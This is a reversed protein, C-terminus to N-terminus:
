ARGPQRESWGRSGQDSTDAKPARLATGELGASTSESLSRSPRSRRDASGAPVAAATDARYGVATAPTWQALHGSAAPHGSPADPTRGDQASRALTVLAASRVASSGAPRSLSGCCHASPRLTRRMSITDRLRALTSRKPEELADLYADIQNGPVDAMRRRTGFWLLRSVCPSPPPALSGASRTGSAEEAASPNRMDCATGM